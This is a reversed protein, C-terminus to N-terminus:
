ISEKTNKGKINWEDIEVVIEKLAVNGEITDTPKQGLTVRYV